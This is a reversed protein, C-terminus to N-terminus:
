RVPLGTSRYRGFRYRGFGVFACSLGDLVPFDGGIKEGERFGRPFGGGGRRGQPGVGTWCIESRRNGFRAGTHYRYPGFGVFPCPVRKLVSCIEGIKEGTRCGLSGMFPLRGRAHYQYPGFSVFPCSLMDLVFCVGGIKERVRFPGIPSFPLAFGVPSLKTLALGTANRSSVPLASFRCVPLFRGESRSL